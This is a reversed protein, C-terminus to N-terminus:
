GVCSVLVNGGNYGKSRFYAYRIFAAAVNEKEAGPVPPLKMPNFFVDDPPSWGFYVCPVESDLRPTMVIEFGSAHATEVESDPYNTYSEMTWKVLPVNPWTQDYSADYAGYDDGSSYICKLDCRGIDVNDANKHVRIPSKEFDRRRESYQLQDAAELFAECTQGAPAVPVSPPPTKIRKKKTATAVIEEKSVAGLAASPVDAATKAAAAAAAATPSTGAPKKDLKGGFAPIKALPMSAGRAPRQTKEKGDGEGDEEEEEVDDEGISIAGDEKELDFGGNQEKEKLDEEGSWAEGKKQYKAEKNDRRLSTERRKRGAEEEKEEEEEEEERFWRTETGTMDDDDVM